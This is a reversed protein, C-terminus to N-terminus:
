SLIKIHGPDNISDKFFSYEPGKLVHFQFLVLLHAYFDDAAIFPVFSEVSDDLLDM